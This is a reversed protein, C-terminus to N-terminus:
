RQSQFARLDAEDEQIWAALQNPQISRPRPLGEPSTRLRSVLFLLLERKQETPLADAATEIDTLTTM